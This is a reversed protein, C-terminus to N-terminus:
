CLECSSDLLSCSVRSARVCVIAPSPEDQQHRRESQAVHNRCFHPGHFRVDRVTQAIVNGHDVEARELRGPRDFDPLANVAHARLRISLFKERRDLRLSSQLHNRCPWSGPLRSSERQGAHRVLAGRRGVAVVHRHRIAAPFVTTMMSIRSPFTTLSSGTIFGCLAYLM